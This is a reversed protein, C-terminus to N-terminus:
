VVGWATGNYFHLKNPNTGDTVYVVLGAAPSSIADRQVETMRPPLFGKSTSVMELQASAAPTLTGIGVNSGVGWVGTTGFKMEDDVQVPSRFYIRWDGEYPFWNFQTAGVDAQTKLGGAITAKAQSDPAATGIGVSSGFVHAVNEECLIFLANTGPGNWDRTYLKTYDAESAPIASTFLDLSGDFYMPVGAGGIRIKDINNYYGIDGKFAGAEDELRISSLGDVHTNRLTILQNNASSRHVVLMDGSNTTPSTTGIWVKGEILMGNAPAAIGTYGSGISANGAVTLLSAPSVTGLGLRNNVEDYASTGFLIKGRTAHSTSQLTLNESAAMGGILTQGGARGALLTYISHDDNALGSLDSHALQANKWDMGDYRLVHGAIPAAIVVDDLEDLISPIFSAVM